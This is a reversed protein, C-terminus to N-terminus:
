RVGVIFFTEVVYISSAAHLPALPCVPFRMADHVFFSIQREKHTKVSNGTRVNSLVLMQQLGISQTLTHGTLLKM